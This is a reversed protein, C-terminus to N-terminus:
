KILCNLSEGKKNWSAINVAFRPAIAVLLQIGVVEVGLDAIQSQTGHLAPFLSAILVPVFAQVDKVPGKIFRLWITQALEPFISSVFHLPVSKPNRYHNQNQRKDKAQNLRDSADQL